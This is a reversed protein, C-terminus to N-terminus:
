EDAGLTNKYAAVYHDHSNNHPLNLYHTRDTFQWTFYGSCFSATNGDFSVKKDPIIFQVPIGTNREVEYFLHGIEQYNICMMNCLLCFPKGSAFLKQFIQKKKSFPINSVVLDVHAPIEHEFFDFGDKIDGYIVNLGKSQFYRVYESDKDDFPCYVTKLENAREYTALFPELCTVLYEPTYYEDRINFSNKLSKPKLNEM